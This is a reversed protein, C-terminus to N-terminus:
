ELVEISFWTATNAGFITLPAGSTQYAKMRLNQGPVVQIVGTYVAQGMPFFPAAPISSLGRGLPIYQDNLLVWIFRSGSNNNSWVVSGSVRVKSVGIPINFLSSGGSHFNDTDYAEIQWSLTTETLNPVTQNINSGILAGRFQASAISSLGPISFTAAGIWSIFSIAIALSFIKIIQKSNNSIRLKTKLCHQNVHTM